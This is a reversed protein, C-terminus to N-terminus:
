DDGDGDDDNDPPYYHFQSLHPFHHSQFASSGPTFGAITLGDLESTLSRHMSIFQLSTLARLHHLEFPPISRCYSVTLKQLTSALHLTLSLCALSTVAPCWHLNFEALQTLHPLFTCLHASTLAEHRITLSTLNTLRTLAAIALTIDVTPECRFKLKTLRPLHALLTGPDDVKWQWPTLETLTPLRVLSAVTTPDISWVIKISELALQPHSGSTLRDLDADSWHTGRGYITLRRLQTMRRLVDICTPHLEGDFTLDTLILDTLSGIRTLPEVIRGVMTSWDDSASDLHVEFEGRTLHPCERAISTMLTTILARRNPSDVEIQFRITLERLDCPLALVQHSPMAASVVLDFALTEIHPMYVKVLILSQVLLDESQLRDIHHRLPSQVLQDIVDDTVKDLREGRSKLNCAAARWSKCIHSTPVLENFTLWGYVAHIADRYLEPRRRSAPTSECALSDEERSRSAAPRDDCHRPAGDVITSPDLPVVDTQRDVDTQKQVDEDAHPNHPPQLPEQDAM